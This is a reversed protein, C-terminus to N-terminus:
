ASPSNRPIHKWTVGSKIRTICSDCVNYSAALLSNKENSNIIEIVQIENLKARHLSIKNKKALRLNQKHEETFKKGKSWSTKGIKALSLKKRHEDTLKKGTLSKSTAAKHQETKAVGKLAKSIGESIKKRYEPDKRQEIALQRLYKKTSEKHRLGKVTGVFPAINYEPRLDDILRQEIKRLYLEECYIMVQFKFSDKNEVEDWENQLKYSHHNGKKLHKFHDQKRSKVNISSGIYFKGNITNIIRYIGSEKNIEATINM